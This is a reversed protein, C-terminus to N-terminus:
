TIQFRVRKKPKEPPTAGSVYSVGSSAGLLDIIGYLKAGKPVDLEVEAVRDRNQYVYAQNTPTLLFGVTDGKVLKAPNWNIRIDDEEGHRCIRGDYGVTWSWPVEQATVFPQKFTSPNLSTVGIVLGDPEGFRVSELRVEFYAGEEFNPVTKDGFVVGQMDSNGPDVHNALIGDASIHVLKSLCQLKADFGTMAPPQKFSRRPETVIKVNDELRSTSEVATVNFIAEYSERGAVLKELMSACYPKGELMHFQWGAEVGLGQSQGGQTVSNVVGTAPDIKVGIAGGM